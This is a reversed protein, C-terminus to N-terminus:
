ACFCRVLVFLGAMGHTFLFEVGLYPNFARFIDLDDAIHSVGLVALTLFWVIMIPGFFKAVSGTGRSQVAFLAIIIM